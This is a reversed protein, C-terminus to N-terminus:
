AAFNGGKEKISYKGWLLKITEKVIPLNVKNFKKLNEKAPIFRLNDLDMAIKFALIKDKIHKAIYSIPVIHDISHGKDKAEKVSKFKTDKLLHASFEKPTYGLIDFKKKSIKGIAFRASTHDCLERLQGAMSKRYKNQGKRQVEKFKERNKEEWIKNSKRKKEPNNKRWKKNIKLTCEICRGARETPNTYKECVHGYKCPNGTFYKSLSQKKAEKRTIIKM